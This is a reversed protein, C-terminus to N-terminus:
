CKNRLKCNYELHKMALYRIELYFISSTHSCIITYKLDNMFTHNNYIITRIHYIFHLIVNYICTYANRIWKVYIINYLVHDYIHTYICICPQSANSFTRQIIKPFCSHFSISSFFAFSLLSFNNQSLRHMGKITIELVTCECLQWWQKM